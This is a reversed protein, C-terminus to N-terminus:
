DPGSILERAQSQISCSSKCMIFHQNDMWRKIKRRTNQNSVGLFPEPGVFKQVSSDKALKDAIENGRLGAHGPVWYLEVTHRTSIVKLMKQCQRVLSSSTKAAQLEKLTAQSDSCISVYNELRDQTETEHACALIAYVDAQFVTARKGLSISLRRDVPQGYVGGGNRKV